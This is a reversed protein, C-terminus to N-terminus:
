ELGVQKGGALAWVGEAAAIRASSVYASHNREIASPEYRYNVMISASERVGRESPNAGWHIAALAAGNRLHFAAVPDLARRRHTALCLYRACLCLLQERVAALPAEDEARHPLEDERSGCLARAHLRGFAEFPESPPLRAGDLARLYADLAAAEDDDDAAARGAAARRQEAGM